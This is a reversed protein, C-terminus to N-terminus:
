QERKLIKQKFLQMVLKVAADEPTDAEVTIGRKFKDLKSAVGDPFWKMVVHGNHWIELRIAPLKRLLYGLDYAPIDKTTNPGINILRYNDGSALPTPRWAKEIDYEPRRLTWGSLEYLNQCLELSAVNM